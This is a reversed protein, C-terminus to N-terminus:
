FDKESQLRRGGSAMKHGKLVHGCKEVDHRGHSRNGNSEGVAGGVRRGVCGSEVQRLQGERSAENMKEGVENAGEAVM